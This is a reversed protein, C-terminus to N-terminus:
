PKWRVYGTRKTADTMDLPHRGEKSTFARGLFPFVGLPQCCAHCGMKTEGRTSSISSMPAYVGSKVGRMNGAVGALTLLLPRSHGPVSSSAYECKVLCENGYKVPHPATLYCVPCHMSHPLALHDSLGYYTGIYRCELHCPPGPFVLCAYWFCVHIHSPCPSGYSPIGWRPLRCLYCDCLLVLCNLACCRCFSQALATAKQPSGKSAAM